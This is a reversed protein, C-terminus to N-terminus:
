FLIFIKLQNWLPLLPSLFVDVHSVYILQNGRMRAGFQFWTGQCPISVAVKRHIPEHELM